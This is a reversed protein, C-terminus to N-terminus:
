ESLPGEENGDDRYLIPGDSDSEEENHRPGGGEPIVSVKPDGVLGRRSRPEFDPQRLLRQPHLKQLEEEIDFDDDEQRCINFHITCNVLWDSNSRTSYIAFYLNLDINM